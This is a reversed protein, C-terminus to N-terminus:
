GAFGFTAYLHATLRPFYTTITTTITAIIPTRIHPSNTVLTTSNLTSLHAIDESNQAISTSRGSYEVGSMESSYGIDEEELAPADTMETDPDEIETGETPHDSVPSKPKAEATTPRLRLVIPAKTTGDCGPCSTAAAPVSPTQPHTHCPADEVIEVVRGMHLM